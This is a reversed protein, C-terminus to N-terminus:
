LDGGEQNGEVYERMLRAADDSRMVEWFGDEEVRLADRLPLEIGQRMIRKITSISLPPLSAIRNAIVMAEDLVARDDVVRTVMGRELAEDAGVVQGQLILEMAPALGILRALRQTGGAGPLIGLNAEPLGVVGSQALVRFDCALALEFGGGMATGNIAAIVPQPLAELKLYCQHTAHLPGGKGFEPNAALMKTMADLEAVDFHQIFVNELGGTIILVRVSEDEAVADAVASLEEVMKGTMLNKPPNHLRVIMVGDRQELKLQTYDAASASSTMAISGLLACALALRSLVTVGRMM